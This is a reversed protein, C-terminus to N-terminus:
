RAVPNGDADIVRVEGLGLKRIPAEVKSLDGVVIWTLSGPKIVERAVANVDDLALARVREAYTRWHGDGLGFKLETVTDGLVAGATEWRGPLTLTRLDKANALEPAAAPRDGVIAALEKQVEAMSEATKDTQVPASVLFPRQGRADIVTSRAGYSWHKDERLNMNIRATFTGGLLTNLAELAVERGYAKPPALHGAIIVSQVADPRDVLYVIPREPLAVERLEKTPVEGRPWSGFHRELLPILKALTTDGVAVLTANNPKFWARHFAVLDDRTLAAVVAEDGSGSFPVAYPHGKGYALQPFLRYGMANPTAKERKIGALTQQRLRAFDEAPFAPNLVLDAYLALTADLNAVLASAGVYTTDLDSGAGISAGLRAMQDAIQMSSRTATGEDLMNGTLSALGPMAGDAAYGADVVLSMEVVPVASRRAFVVKLGNSLTATEREPLVGGPYGTPFPVKSRDVDSATTALTPYPQVELTWAGDDLWTRALRTLDAPTAALTARLNARWAGPSGGYVTSEALVDSKGGFGGIREVGRVFAARLEATERALESRTPGKARFAALEEDIAREVARADGGPQVTAVITFLSAIEHTERYAFVETAIRDRYVLRQYLRSNKGGGLVAAALDLQEGDADGWQPVNWVKYIRAQPVRDQLVARQSGHRQGVWARHRPLAPGAPIDGFYREVKAKAEDPTVDGAIVLVANAAGYYEKFWARVDDLSAADLDDMSGITDWSMPHAAPFVSKLMLDDVRGYPQNEGQRKENQVVGRQEDLKAQTIAGLLHGMRDSEMWLAMDFASKPVNQFYNTRDFWTTGNLSTAGVKAFAKFWDDDYHESGNFMLHEFLHAFGTKGPKEDKSGVHYWVNVAVIPAKHDEHVVLRLGNKLTFETYPIDVPLEDPAPATSAAAVGAVLALTCALLRPTMSRKM